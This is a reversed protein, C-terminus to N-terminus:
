RKSVPATTGRINLREPVVVDKTNPQDPSEIQQVLLKAGIKGIERTDYGVTSLPPTMNETIAIDNFAILSLDTPISLGHAWAAHTIRLAEVHCYGIMATPPDPGLLRGMAEETSLHWVTIQDALGAERMAREYGEKRQDVSVHPRISDAIYYVIRKHGLGILHRAALYGGAADDPMVHVANEFQDGLVVSPLRASRVVEHVPEPVHLLFALGDVGNGYVIEKWDSSSTVPILRLDYNQEQLSETFSIAIDNMPDEFIWKANSYLLGISHTKGRSLARAGWHPQYGLEESVRLIENVKQSSRKQAGKVDGRLARAVTSSSVGVREAIQDITVAMKSAM